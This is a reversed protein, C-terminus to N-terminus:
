LTGKKGKSMNQRERLAAREAQWAELETNTEAYHHCSAGKNMEAHRAEPSEVVWYVGKKFMLYKM